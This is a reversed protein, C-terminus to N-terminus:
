ENEWPSIRDICGEDTPKSKTIFDEYYVKASPLSMPQVEVLDAPVLYNPYEWIPKLESRKLLEILKDTNNM